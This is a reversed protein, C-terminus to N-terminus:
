TASSSPNSGGLSKERAYRMIEGAMKVAQQAEEIPIERWDDPYRPTVAYMTLADAFDRYTLFQEHERTCIDILRVLDHTRGNAVGRSALFGKLSKEACQQAHFCAPRALSPDSLALNAVKLDETALSLWREVVERTAEDM